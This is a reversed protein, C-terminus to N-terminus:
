AKEAVLQTAKKQPNAPIYKDRLYLLKSEFFHYIGFGILFVMLLTFTFKLIPNQIGTKNLIILSAHIILPHSLYLTYSSISTYEIFKYVSQNINLVKDKLSCMTATVFLAVFFYGYVYFIPAKLYISSTVTLLTIIFLYRFKPLYIKVNFAHFYSFLLGILLGDMRLHTATSLYSFPIDRTINKVEYLRFLLPVFILFCSIYFFLKPNKKLMILSLLLPMFLYFHEEICLTWSVLFFPLEQEYNQLFFLFNYDFPEKRSMYVAFYSIALFIYYFPLTRSWRRLWFQGLNVTGTKKYEKWYLTGVLYGSLCFFIDVTYKAVEIYRYVNDDPITMQTVHFLMIVIITFARVLDFAFNRNM